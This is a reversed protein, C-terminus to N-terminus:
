VGCAQSAQPGPPGTILSNFYRTQSGLAEHDEFSTRQSPNLNETSCAWPPFPGRGRHQAKWETRREAAPSHVCEYTHPTSDSPKACTSEQTWSPIACFRPARTGKHFQLWARHTCSVRHKATLLVKPHVPSTTVTVRSTSKRKHEQFKSVCLWLLLHVQNNKRFRLEETGSEWWWQMCQAQRNVPSEAERAFM